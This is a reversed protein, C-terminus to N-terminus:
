DGSKNGRLDDVMSGADRRVKIALKIRGRAAIDELGTQIGEV